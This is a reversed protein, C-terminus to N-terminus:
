SVVLIPLSQMMFMHRIIGTLIISCLFIGHLHLKACLGANAQPSATLPDSGFHLDRFTGSEM